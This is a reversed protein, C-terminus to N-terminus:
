IEFLNGNFFGLKEWIKKKNCNTDHSYLKNRIKNICAVVKGFRIAPHPPPHSHLILNKFFFFVLLPLILAYNCLLPLGKTIM